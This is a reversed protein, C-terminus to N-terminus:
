GVGVGVVLGLRQQLECNSDKRIWARFDAARWSPMCAEEKDFFHPRFFNTITHQVLTERNDCWSSFRAMVGEDDARALHVEIARVKYGGTRTHLNEPGQLEVIIGPATLGLEESRIWLDSFLILWIAFDDSLLMALPVTFVKLYQDLMGRKALTENFRRRTVGERKGTPDSM